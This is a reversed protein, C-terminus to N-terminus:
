GLALDLKRLMADFPDIEAHHAHEGGFLALYRPSRITTSKTPDQKSQM